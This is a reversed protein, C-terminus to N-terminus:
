LDLTGMINHLELPENLIHKAGSELLVEVRRYGWSVGVPYAGAALAAKMDVETDGVYLVSEPPVNLRECELLLPAPNPKKPVPSCHGRVYSFGADPFIRAVVERTMGHHKNSIVATPIGQRRLSHLLDHIGPYARTAKVFHRSYHRMLVILLQEQDGQGQSAREVLKVIGGGIMAAYNEEPHTPLAQERLAENMAAGLDDLTHVLTGDLDFFVASVSM